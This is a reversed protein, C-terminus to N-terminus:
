GEAVVVRDAMGNLFAIAAGFNTVPVGMDKAREMRSLMNKRNIMCAGCHVILKYGALDDNFEHGSTVSFELEGGAYGSLWRPLKERAIDGKLAHHTCAEAMLVKDGPKLNAIARAGRMLEGIDGKQGAMLLSFSTLRVDGPLVENVYKFIQSDTIVLSPPEKLAALAPALGNKVVSLTLCGRDLLERLVQVQPLILRGKPAQIDQPMVLMVMDGESVLNGLLSAEGVGGASKIIARKLCAIGEGTLANVVVVGEPAEPADGSFVNVAEIVPTNRKAFEAAYSKELAADDDDARRIIVAIDTKDMVERTKKVRAEGLKTVDNLGATDIFVVPGVPLLEMAKYVPDTTTGAVESVLAVGSGAIANIISSKGANTKGFIGIHLRNARPTEDLKSM